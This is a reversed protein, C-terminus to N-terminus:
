MMPSLPVTRQSPKSSLTEHQAVRAPLKRYGREGLYDSVPGALLHWRGDDKIL